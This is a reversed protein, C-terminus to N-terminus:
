GIRRRDLDVRTQQNGLKPHRSVDRVCRVGTFRTRRPQRMKQYGKALDITAEAILEGGESVVRIEDGARSLCVRTGRWPRGVGCWTSNAPTEFGTLEDGRNPPQEHRTVPDM